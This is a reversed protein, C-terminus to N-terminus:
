RPGGCPPEPSTHAQLVLSGDPELTFLSVGYYGFTSQVLHVVQAFLEDRHLLAAIQRGVQAVLELGAARAQAQRYLRANQIAVAIQNALISLRRLDDESYANPQDSQVAILGIAQDAALLPVFLGSRPPTESQYSPRAPLIAAEREFDRVLLPQHTRRVWNVLGDNPSLPFAAPARREGRVRWILIRYHTGEFLGLQFTDTEVVRRVERDILECLADVDGQALAIMRGVTSLAELEQLHPTLLAVEGGEGPQGDDTRRKSLGQRRDDTMSNAPPTMPRPPRLNAQTPPPSRRHRPRTFPSCATLASWRLSKVSARPFARWSSM